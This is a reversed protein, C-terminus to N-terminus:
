FTVVYERNLMEQVVDAYVEKSWDSIRGDPQLDYSEHAEKSNFWDRVQQETYDMDKMCCIDTAIAYRLKRQDETLVKYPLEEFGYDDVYYYRGQYLVIDSVSLSHGKYGEPKSGQLKAYITELVADTKDCLIEVEGSYVQEYNALEVQLGLHKVMDLSSFMLVHANKASDKIQFVKFNQKMTTDEKTM